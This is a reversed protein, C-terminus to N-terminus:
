ADQMTCGLDLSAAYHVRQHDFSVRRLKNLIAEHLVQVSGWEQRKLTLVLSELEISKSVENQFTEM